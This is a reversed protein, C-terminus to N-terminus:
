GNGRWMGMNVSRASDFNAHAIKIVSQLRALNKVMEGAAEQWQQHAVQYADRADGTWESLSARLSADLRDLEAELAYLIEQFYEGAAAMGLLDVRISVSRTVEVCEGALAM